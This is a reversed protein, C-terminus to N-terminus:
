NSGKPFTATSANDLKPMKKEIPPTYIKITNKIIGIFATDELQEVPPYILAYNSEALLRNVQELSCDLAYGLWIISDRRGHNSHKSGKSEKGDKATSLIPISGNLLDKCSDLSAHSLISLEAPTKKSLALMEQRFTMYNVPRCNNTAEDLWENALDIDDDDLADANGEHKALTELGLHSLVDNAFQLWVVKETQPDTMTKKSAHDFIHALVYNRINVTADYTNTFLGPHAVEMLAHSAKESDYVHEMMLLGILIFDRPPSAKKNTVNWIQSASCTYYIKAFQGKKIGMAKFADQRGMIISSARDASSPQSIVIEASGDEATTVEVNVHRPKQNKVLKWNEKADATQQEILFNVLGATGNRYVDDYRM